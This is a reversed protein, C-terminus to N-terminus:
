GANKRKRPGVRSGVVLFHQPCDRIVIGRIRRRSRRPRDMHSRGVAARRRRYSRCVQRDHRHVIRRVDFLCISRDITDRTLRDRYRNMGLERIRFPLRQAKHDATQWGPKRVIRGRSEDRARQWRIGCRGPGVSDRNGRAVAVSAGVRFYERYLSM